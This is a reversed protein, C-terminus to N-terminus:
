ESGGFLPSSEQDKCCKVVFYCTGCLSVGITLDIVIGGGEGFTKNWDAVSAHYGEGVESEYGSQLASDSQEEGAVTTMGTQACASVWSLHSPAVIGPHFICVSHIEPFLAVGRHQPLHKVTCHAILRAATSTCRLNACNHASRWRGTARAVDLHHGQAVLWPGREVQADYNEHPTNQAVLKISACCRGQRAGRAVAEREGSGGAGAPARGVECATTCLRRHSPRRGPGRPARPM